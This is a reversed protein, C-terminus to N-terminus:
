KTGTFEVYRYKSVFRKRYLYKIHRFAYNIMLRTRRWFTLKDQLYMYNLKLRMYKNDIGSLKLQTAQNAHGYRYFVTPIDINHIKYGHSVISRIMPADEIDRIVEPYYGIDELMERSFFFTPAPIWADNVVENIGIIPTDGGPNWKELKDPTDLMDSKAFIRIASSVAHANLTIAANYLIDLCRDELIDYGAIPKLWLGESAKCGRNINKSIGINESGKIISVKSFREKNEACWKECVVITDDSSCDDTIVLELPGSWTQRAISDLTERVCWGSNYTLAIVSITPKAKM